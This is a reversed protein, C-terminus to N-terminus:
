SQNLLSANSLNHVANGKVERKGESDCINYAAKLSFPVATLFHFDINPLTKSKTNTNFEKAKQCGM